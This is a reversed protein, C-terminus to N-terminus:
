CKEERGGVLLKKELDQQIYSFLMLKGECYADHACLDGKTLYSAARCGAQCIFFYKCSSSEAKVKEETEQLRKLEKSDLIEEISNSNINGLVPKDIACCPLFDGNVDITFFDQFCRGAYDCVPVESAYAAAEGGLLKKIITSLPQIKKIPDSDSTWIDYMEKHFRFYEEGNMKLDSDKGMYPLIAMKSLKKDKYYQYTDRARGSNHKSVVCIGGADYKQVLLDIGKNVREFSGNGSAFPRTINQVEEPGDSSVGITFNNGVLFDVIEDSLLIANTQLENIVETGNKYKNQLELAKRYFDLGNLLPEGGHWIFTVRKFAALFNKTINELTQSDMKRQDFNTYCYKCRLNCSKTTKVIVTTHDKM